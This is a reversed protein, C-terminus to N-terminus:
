AGGGAVTRTACAWWGRERACRCAERAAADDRAFAAVCSGSGCLLPAGVRGNWSELYAFVADVGPALSRAAAEMNNGCADIAAAVDGARLAARLAEADARRPRLRDLERYAQATSVGDDPKVLVLPQEFGAFFEVPRDGRGVFYGTRGDVFFPVDAGLSTAAARLRADDLAVDWLRALGRLVAGADSSGGGLGAQAPIRKEICIRLSPEIGCSRALLEAARYALNASSPAGSLPDPVCSFAIGPDGAEEVLVEDALALPCMVTEVDHYGDDGAGPRVSLLLNIKAPAQLRM